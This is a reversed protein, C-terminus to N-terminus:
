HGHFVVLLGLKDLLAWGAAALAVFVAPLRYPDDGLFKATPDPMGAAGSLRSAEWKKFERRLEKMRLYFRGVVVLPPLLGLAPLLYAYYFNPADVGSVALKLWIAAFSFVLLLGWFCWRQVLEAYGAFEAYNAFDAYSVPSDGAGRVEPRWTRASVRFFMAVPVACAMYVGVSALRVAYYTTHSICYSDYGFWTKNPDTMSGLYETLLMPGAPVVLTVFWPLLLERTGWTKDKLESIAEGADFAAKRAVLYAAVLSLLLLLFQGGPAWMSTSFELGKYQSKLSSRYVAERELGARAEVFLPSTPRDLATRFENARVESTALDRQQQCLREARRRLQIECVESAPTRTNPAACPEAAWRGREVHWTSFAPIGGLVMIIAGFGLLWMHSVVRRADPNQPM